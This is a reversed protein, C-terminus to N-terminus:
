HVRRTRVGLKALRAQVDGAGALHGAGLAVFFTGHQGLLADIRRAFNANRRMLLAEYLVPFRSLVSDDVDAAIGAVDGHLWNAELQGVPVRPQSRNALVAKLLQLQQARPADAFLAIQEHATEFARVPKHRTRFQHELEADAGSAPDYGARQIRTTALTLAALWPQMVDLTAVGDPIDTREAATRLRAKETADLQRSLMYPVHLVYLHRPYVRHFNLIPQLAAVDAHNVGYKLILGLTRSRTADDQEVYLAQSAALARDLAPFRWHTGEPLVHMTGFLYVTATASRATWLAPHASVGNAAGLLACLTIAILRTHRM